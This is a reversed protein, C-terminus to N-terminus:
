LTKNFAIGRELRLLTEQAENEGFWYFHGIRM